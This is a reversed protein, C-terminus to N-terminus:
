VRAATKRHHALAWVGIALGAAVAVATGPAALVAGLLLGGVAGLVRPALWFALLVLAYVSLQKIAADIVVQTKEVLETKEQATM